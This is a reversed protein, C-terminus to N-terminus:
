EVIKVFPLVQQVVLAVLALRPSKAISAGAEMPEM